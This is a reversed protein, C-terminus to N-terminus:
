KVDAPAVIRIKDGEDALYVSTTSTSSGNTDKIAVSIVLKKYPAPSLKVSAGGPGVMTQSAEAIDDKTLDKIEVTLAGKGLDATLGSLYFDLITKNAGETHVLAAIAKADKAAYAAKYATLFAQEMAPTAAALPGASIMLAATAVLITMSRM